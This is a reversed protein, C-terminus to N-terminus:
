CPEAAVHHECFTIKGRSTRDMARARGQHLLQSLEILDQPSYSIDFEFQFPSNIKLM